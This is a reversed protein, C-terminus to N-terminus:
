PGMSLPPTRNLLSTRCSVSAMSNLSSNLLIEDLSIKYSRIESGTFNCDICETDRLIYQHISMNLEQDRNNINSENQQSKTYTSMNPDFFLAFEESALIEHRSLLDQLYFDIDEVLHSYNVQKAEAQKLYKSVFASWYSTLDDELKNVIMIGGNENELLNALDRTESNEADDFCSRPLPFKLNQTRLKERILKDFEAFEAYSRRIEYTVLHDPRLQVKLQFGPVKLISSENVSYSSCRISLVLMNMKRFQIRVLSETEADWMM